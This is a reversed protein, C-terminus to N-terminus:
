VATASFIEVRTLKAFTFFMLSIAFLFTFIGIICILLGTKHITSLIAIAATPLLCAILTTVASRIRVIPTGFKRYTTLGALANKEQDLSIGGFEIDPELGKRRLVERLV